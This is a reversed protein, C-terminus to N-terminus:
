RGGAVPMGGELWRPREAANAVDYGILFAHRAQQVAGRLDFAGDYEDSPQHYSRANWAGLVLAGWERSRGRYDDGHVVQIAPVGARAFAFHDSRFYLGLEPAPDPASAMGLERGRREAIRGLTSREGGLAIYDDTEGWLNAGDININAVTRAIPFPANEVYYRAGLLGAEEGTTALFVVSRNPAEDLSAFARAIELMAAVGSANDYAGNYISDGDVPAGVGLHDVHATYVVVEDRRAAHSGPVVGIANMATRRESSGVARAALTIGTNIPTFNRRAARVRLENLDIGRAALIESIRSHTIWGELTLPSRTTAPLSYQAGSWSAEVVSWPYGAGDANHVLLVGAAGQRRAEEVKYSWRGYYTLARGQFLRAETPPAPPDGILAVVVKGRVDRGKYDDWQYEPARVGYGVFVLEAQVRAVSDAHSSWIIADPGYRARLRRTGAEFELTSRVPNPTWVAFEVAQLYSGRVPQVGAHLLQSAVYQAAIRGGDTAPARGALLDDSLFALHARIQAAGIDRLADSLDGATSATLLLVLPVSLLAPLKM